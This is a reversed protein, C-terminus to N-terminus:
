HHFYPIVHEAYERFFGEDDGGIQHVYLEDVGAAQYEEFLRLHAEIDPGCPVIKAVMTESVLRCVQECHAPTPLVQGLEGPLAVNPWLTRATQRASREDDAFCVKVGAQVPKGTGGASRFLSILGADPTTLCYGDGVAGALRTAKPGLGSVFIPPPTTPLTYIRANELRFHEGKYSHPGPQWLLRIIEVAERLMELRIEARPWPQGTIHENLAEGTGVGLTFRGNLLVTCTAAAQAVIAPHIRMIPCTVATTIPISDTERAIAGLVTWVFSSQGQADNWPHFHDTIWLGAFGASEARRAQEILREPVFEESALCYGIRM